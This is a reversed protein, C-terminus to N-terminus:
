KPTELQNETFETSLESEFFGNPFKKAIKPAVKKM